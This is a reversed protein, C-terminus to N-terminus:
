LNTIHVTQLLILLYVDWNRKHFYLNYLKQLAIQCHIIVNLFFCLKEGLLEVELFSDCPFLQM